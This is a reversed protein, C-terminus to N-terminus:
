PKTKQEYTQLFGWAEEHMGQEHATRAALYWIYAPANPFDMIRRLQWFADDPRRASELAQYYAIGTAIDMPALAAAREVSRLDSRSIPAPLSPRPGHQFHLDLAEQLNKHQAAQNALTRWGLRKIRPNQEAIARVEDGRSRELMYQLVSEVMHDPAHTLNETKALFRPLRADGAPGANRIRIFEMEPDEAYFRLLVAQVAPHANSQRLFGAYKSPRQGRPARQLTRNWAYVARAANVPLWFYGEQELMWHLHPLLADVARFQNWAQDTQGAELQYAALAWHADWDYPRLQTSKQLLAVAQENRGAEKEQGALDRLVSTGQIGPFLPWNFASVIWILGIGALLLGGVRMLRRKYTRIREGDAPPLALSALLIGPFLVGIRHASVEFFTNLILVVTCALAAARVSTPRARRAEYGLKFFVAFAAVLVLVLLWGGESALLLLSNDPHLPRWGAIPEYDLYFPFVFSFNGLGFGAVPADHVMTMTMRYFEVRLDGSLGDEFTGVFRELLVGGGVAFAAFAILMFSFAIAAYRYQKRALGYFVWYAFGGVVLVVLGGRSQNSLIAGTLLALAIGWFILASKHSHRFSQHLIAMAMIGGMGMVSGWQNRSIFPGFGDTSEWLAPNLGTAYGFIAFVTIALLGGTYMRALTDRNYHDWSQSACWGALLVGVLWLLWRHFTMWPQPSVFSSAVISPVEALGARWEPMALWAAPLYAALPALAVLLLVRIAAKSPKYKPPYVVWLLAVGVTVVGQAWLPRGGALVVTLLVTVVLLWGCPPVMFLDERKHWAPAEKAETAM